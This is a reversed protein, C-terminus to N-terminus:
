RVSWRAWGYEEETIRRLNLALIRSDSQALDHAVVPMWDIVTYAALSPGARLEAALIIPFQSDGMQARIWAITASLSARWEERTPTYGADNAGLHLVAVRPSLARLMAGSNSYQGLIDGLRMGGRAISQVVVGRPAGASKFRVGVLEQGVKASNGRLELQLHRKGSFVLPPTALWAFGDVPTKSAFGLTGGQVTAANADPMDLDTPRNRWAFGPSSKRRVALVEAVYPGQQDFWPGNNLLADVTRSADHIFLTRQWDNPAGSGALLAQVVFNPLTQDPPLTASACRAGTTAASRVRDLPNKPPQSHTKPM